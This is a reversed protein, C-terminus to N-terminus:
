LAHMYGGIKLIGPGHCFAPAACSSFGSDMGGMVDPFRHSRTKAGPLKPKVRLVLFIHKIEIVAGQSAMSETAVTILQM